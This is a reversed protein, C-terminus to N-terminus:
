LSCLKINYKKNFYTFISFLATRSLYFDEYQQTEKLKVISM